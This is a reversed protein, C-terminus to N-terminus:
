PVHLETETLKKGTQEFIERIDFNIIRKDNVPDLFKKDAVKFKSLLNALEIM